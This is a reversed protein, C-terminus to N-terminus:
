KEPAGFGVVVIEDIREVAALALVTSTLMPRGAIPLYQKPRDARMRSGVGAACVLAAIKPEM